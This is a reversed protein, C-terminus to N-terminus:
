RETIEAGTGRVRVIRYPGDGVEAPDFEDGSEEARHELWGAYEDRTLELLEVEGEAVARCGIADQPFVIVDDEVKIRLAVDEASVLELWCGKNECVGSVRGEVRVRTGAWAEPDAVIEGIPTLELGATLPEGFTRIAGSSAAATAATTVALALVAALLMRALM